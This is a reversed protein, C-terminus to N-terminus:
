RGEIHDRIKREILDLAVTNDGGRLVIIDANKKSPEVYLEHMPKVTGLYQTVISDFSRAREVMDRRIRRIIRVDADADVFVKIDFLDCLERNDLVLIGEVLVVRTPAITRTRDTRNYVAFDYVPIVAERGSKLLKLDRIMLDTDYADPADYNLKVREDYTLEDHAKYYFDHQIVTVDGGFAAKINATLTSKGSGSGGAIGILLVKMPDQM